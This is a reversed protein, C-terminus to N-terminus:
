SLSESTCLPPEEGCSSTESLFATAGHELARTGTPRHCVPLINACKQGECRDGGRFFGAAYLDMLIGSSASLLPTRRCIRVICAGFEM